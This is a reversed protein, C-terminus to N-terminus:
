LKYCAEKALKFLQKLKAACFRFLVGLLRILYPILRIACNYLLIGGLMVVGAITLGLGIEYLGPAMSAATILQTIGYIIGVLSVAAGAAVGGIVAAVLLVIVACLAGFMVGFVGVYLALFLLSLPLTVIFLLWFITRGRSTNFPLAEEEEYAAPSSHANVPTHTGSHSVDEARPILKTSDAAPEARPITKTNAASEQAASPEKAAARMKVRAIGEALASIEAPDNLKELEKIDEPTLTLGISRVHRQAAEPSLGKTILEDRLITLFQEKEL